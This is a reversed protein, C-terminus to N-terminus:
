NKEEELRDLEMELKRDLNQVKSQTAEYEAAYLLDKDERSTNIDSDTKSGIEPLKSSEFVTNRWLTLHKWVVRQYVDYKFSFDEYIYTNSAYHEGRERLYQTGVNAHEGDRDTYTSKSNAAAKARKLIEVLERTSERATGTNAGQITGTTGYRTLVANNEDIDIRAVYQYEGTSLSQGSEICYFDKNGSMLFDQKFKGKHILTGNWTTYSEVDCLGLGMTKGLTWNDPNSSTIFKSSDTYNKYWSHDTANCSDLGCVKTAAEYVVYTSFLVVLIILIIFFIKKAIKM